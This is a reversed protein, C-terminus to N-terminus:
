TGALAQRAPRFLIEHVDGYEPPSIAVAVARAWTEAPVARASSTCLREAM